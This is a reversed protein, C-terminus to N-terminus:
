RFHPNTLLYTLHGVVPWAWPGPPLKRNRVHRLLLLATLLIASGAWVVPHERVSSMVPDLGFWGLDPSALTTGLFDMWRHLLSLSQHDDDQHDPDAM